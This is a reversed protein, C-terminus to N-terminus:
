VVQWDRAGFEAAMAYGLGRSAGILLLTSTRSSEHHMLVTWAEHRAPEALIRTFRRAQWKHSIVTGMRGFPARRRPKACHFRKRPAAPKSGTSREVTTSNASTTSAAAFEVAPALMSM